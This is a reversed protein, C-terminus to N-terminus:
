NKKAPPRGRGRKKVEDNVSTIESNVKSNQGSSSSNTLGNSKSNDKSVAPRGRKKVSISAEAVHDKKEQKKEAVIKSGRFGTKKPRGRGRSEPEVKKNITRLGGNKPPRGRGRKEVQGQENELDAQNTNEDNQSSLSSDDM